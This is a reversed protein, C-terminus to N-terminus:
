NVRKVVRDSLSRVTTVCACRGGNPSDTYGGINGAEDIHAVHTKCGDQRLYTGGREIQENTM